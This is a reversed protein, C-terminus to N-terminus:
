KFENELDKLDDETLVWKTGAKYKWGCCPCSADGNIAYNMLVSYNIDTDLCYMCYVPGSIVKDNM